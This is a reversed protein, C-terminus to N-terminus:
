NLIEPYFYFEYYDCNVDSSILELQGLESDILVDINHQVTM